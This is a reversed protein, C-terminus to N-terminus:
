SKVGVIDTDIIRMGESTRALKYGSARLASAMGRNSVAEAFYYKDAKRLWKLFSVVAEDVLKQQYPFKARFLSAEAWKDFETTLDKCWSAPFGAYRGVHIGCARMRSRILADPIETKERVKTAKLAAVIEDNGAGDSYMQRIITDMNEKQRRRFDRVAQRAAERDAEVGPYSVDNWIRQRVWAM